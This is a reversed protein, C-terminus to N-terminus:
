IKNFENITYLLKFMEFDTQKNKKNLNTKLLMKGPRSNIVANSHQIPLM